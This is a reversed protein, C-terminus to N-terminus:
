RKEKIFMSFLTPMLFINPLAYRFYTNAPSVFCVLLLILSPLIYIISKYNKKYLLYSLMFLLIWTNFGINVFLGIFPIYPFVLAIASLVYRLIYLSNFSYNFGFDNVIKKPIIYVYWNTEVPYFYGYTNNITAEIYTIPHKKLELFWVKFYNKLDNNTYYRNFKNKVPDALKPNYRKDITDYDLIKDIAKKESKTVENKHEKVYRATQQFPVSLMERVSGNTIKFHPLIVKNYSFYFSIVVLFILLYKKLNKKSTLFLFPFSLLVVHFGNNRFLMILIILIIERVIDKVKMSCKNKIFKYLSIVYLIILCGFIVDKVPSLAYLPFVPVLAYIFLCLKRYKENVNIEKMFKITYSLTAALIFTQILTYIFLGISFSNFLKIGIKICSGLLLTHIVPHHNTLIVSKDILISYYSYKNDIGFYQLIQYSPDPSLIGPYFAILYILWCLLIFILSFIFPKEKLLTNFKSKKIDLNKERKEDLKDYLYITIENIIKYLLGSSILFLIHYKTISKFNGTLIFSTGIIIFITIILSYIISLIKKRKM